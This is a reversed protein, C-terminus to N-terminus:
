GVEPSTEHPRSRLGRDDVVVTKMIKDHLTQRDKDWFAWLLDIIGPIGFLFGGLGGILLGEVVWERLFTWGWDSPTGDVRMVRIGVLQKGPTQGHHLTFVLQWILYGIVLTVFFLVLDLIWAGVRQGLGALRVGAPSILYQGCWRCAQSDGVDRRSCDPCSLTAGCNGCFQADPPNSQRCISCEGHAVLETACDTCFRVGTENDRGCQPCKM